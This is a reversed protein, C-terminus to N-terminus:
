TFFLVLFNSDKLLSHVASDLLEGISLLYPHRSEEGSRIKCTWLRLANRHLGCVRLNIGKNEVIPLLHILDDTPAKRPYDIRFETSRGAM